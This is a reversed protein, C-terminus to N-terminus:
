QVETRPLEGGLAEMLRTAIVEHARDNPHADGPSVWLQAPEIGAMASRVEITPVSADDAIQQIQQHIDEFRYDEGPSHLEPIMLIRLEIQKERCLDALEALAEQCAQWGPRTPEYLRRYYDAYDARQGMDRAMGGASSTALVYLYSHEALWGGKRRPTPEADNIYYGLIVMDPDYQIGRERFYTVEQVTNYNGVGSNIVEFRAPEGARDNLMREFRKPYTQDQQAGWGFTMSDGLVLIRYVGEPKELPFERDRLGRQNIQVAAGMLFASSGPVHEHGLDGIASERKLQKAYKWMEIDYQM